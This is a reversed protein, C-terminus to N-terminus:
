IDNYKIKPADANIGATDLYVTVTESNGVPDTATIKIPYHGAVATGGVDLKLTRTDTNNPRFSSLVSAASPTVGVISPTPYEVSLTLNTSASYSGLANAKITYTPQNTPKSIGNSLPYNFTGPTVILDFAKPIVIMTDGATGSDSIRDCQITFPAPQTLKYNTATGGATSKAGAWPTSGGQTATCSSPAGATVWKVDFNQNYMPRRNSNSTGADVADLTVGVPLGAFLVGKDILPHFDIWGYDPSWAYGELFGTTRNISIGYPNGSAADTGRLSIWGADGAGAGTCAGPATASHMCFRAWGTIPINGPNSLDARVECAASAGFVAGPCGNLDNSGGKVGNNFSIWGFGPDTASDAGALAYGSFLGQNAGAATDINVGYNVTACTNYSGLPTSGSTDECNFSIWGIGGGTSDGNWAWGSVNQLAASAEVKTTTNDHRASFSVGAGLVLVFVLVALLRQIYNKNKEVM